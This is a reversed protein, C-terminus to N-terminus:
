AYRIAILSQIAPAQVKSSSGYISNQKSANFKLDLYNLKIDGVAVLLGGIKTSEIM